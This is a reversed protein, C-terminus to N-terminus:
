NTQDKAGQFHLILAEVRQRKELDPSLSLYEKLDAIALQFRATRALLVGRERLAEMRDQPCLRILATLVWYLRALDEKESLIARLNRLIRSVMDRPHAVRLVEPGFPVAGRTWEFLRKECDEVSLFTGGDFPDM